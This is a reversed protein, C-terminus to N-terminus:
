VELYFTDPKNKDFIENVWMVTVLDTEGVNTISHTYGVPIDVVKLDNGSVCYEIIDSSGIRRFRIKAEGSVVLFKETKTNHWHNGKVIGPKSINISIQGCNHSKLFETFSGREDNNSKLSYSFIDDPLYSLYTSYLKKSFEEEVNPILLEERSLKYSDILSKIESISVDYVPNILCEVDGSHELKQMRYIFTNVVDDIYVLKIRKDPDSITVNLDRSINHCFTAIVSNYNPRCWKGFVNPLRFILTLVNEKVGFEKIIQEGALKSRGYPNDLIAQISSTMLIPAKNNNKKLHELLKLTFDYNGVMFEVESEPRNVGALHFVFDCNKTFSEIDATTSNQDCEYIDLFGRNKLEAILNSGIFGSSGTVLIKM